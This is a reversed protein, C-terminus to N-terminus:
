EDPRRTLPRPRKYVHNRQFTVPIISSRLITLLYSVPPYPGDEKTKDKDKLNKQRRKGLALPFDRTYM